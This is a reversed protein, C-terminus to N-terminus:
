GPRATEVSARLLDVTAPDLGDPELPGGLEAYSLVVLRDGVLAAGQRDVM